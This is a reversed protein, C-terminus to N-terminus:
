ARAGKQTFVNLGTQEENVRVMYGLLMLSQVAHPTNNKVLDGYSYLFQVFDEPVIQKIRQQLEEEPMQGVRQIYELADQIRKNSL